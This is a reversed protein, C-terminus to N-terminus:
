PPRENGGTSAEWREGEGQESEGRNRSGRREMEMKEEKLQVVGNTPLFFDHKEQQEIGRLVSVESVVATSIM